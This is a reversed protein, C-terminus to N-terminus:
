WPRYLNRPIHPRPKPDQGPTQPCSVYCLNQIAPNPIELTEPKYDVEVDRVVRCGFSQTGVLHRHHGDNGAKTSGATSTFALGM